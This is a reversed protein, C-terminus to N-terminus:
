PSHGLSGQLGEARRRLSQPAASLDGLRKGALIWLLEPARLSGEALPNSGHHAPRAETWEELDARAAPGEVEREVSGGGTLDHQILRGDRDPVPARGSAQLAHNLRCRPALRFIM